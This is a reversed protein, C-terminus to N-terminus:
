VFFLQIIQPIQMNCLPFLHAIIYDCSLFTRALTCSFYLSVFIGSSYSSATAVSWPDFLRLAPLSLYLDLGRTFSVSHLILNIYILNLCFSQFIQTVPFGEGKDSDFIRLFCIPIRRLSFTILHKQIAHHSPFPLHLFLPYVFSTLYWSRVCIVRPQCTYLFRLWPDNTKQKPLVKGRSM